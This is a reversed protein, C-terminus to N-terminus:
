ETELVPTRLIKRSGIDIVSLPSGIKGTVPDLVEHESGLTKATIRRQLLAVLQSIERKSWRAM